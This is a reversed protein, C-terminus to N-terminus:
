FLFRFRFRVSPFYLKFNAVGGYSFGSVVRVGIAFLAWVSRTHRDICTLLWVCGGDKAVCLLLFSKGPRRVEGSGVILLLPPLKALTLPHANWPNVSPDNISKPATYRLLHMTSLAILHARM